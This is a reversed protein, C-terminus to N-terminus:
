LMGYFRYRIELLVNEVTDIDVKEKITSEEIAKALKIKDADAIAILEDYEYKHNRINMLLDRDGAVNRDLIIGQGTAIEYGMHVLRMTHCLNKSDYNKDLNSEYRKPNRNKEWDKHEKYKKCHDKYGSENYVMYVIPKEGKSVSSLRLENSNEGAMGSYGIPKQSEFWKKLSIDPLGNEKLKYFRFIFEVMNVLQAKMMAHEYTKRQVEDKASKWKEVADSLKVKGSMNYAKVLDEYKIGDDQFHRGWDYYCGYVDRMNPINVLGCYEQKLGCYSLWNVINTSGQNYFTYAFDLPGKRETIPNVIKKNLGRAKHMQEIAYQVFPRFCAKTIFKDRNAFVGELCKHPKVIMMEEPVFLSELVNANSSLLMGMYKGVEYFVNDAKDDGIQTPYLDFKDKWKDRFQKDFGLGYLEDPSAIFLGKTDVDSGEENCHYLTSGAVYHYLLRGENRIDEITKM